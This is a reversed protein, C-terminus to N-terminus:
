QDLGHRPPVYFEQVQMKDGKRVILSPVAALQLREAIDGTLYFIPRHLRETLDAARGATLLVKVQRTRSYPSNIFWNVQDPDDGDIIILNGTMVIYNLPNFSYGRPYIVNGGADTLDRDLTFHMDVLFTRDATARPLPRLGAPRYNQIMEDVMEQRTKETKLSSLRLEAILDPEIVPFTRGVSGLHKTVTAWASASILLACLGLTTSVM